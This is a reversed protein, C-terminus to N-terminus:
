QQEFLFLGPTTKETASWFMSINRQQRRLEKEAGFVVIFLLSKREDRSHHGTRTIFGDFESREVNKATLNCWCFESRTGM